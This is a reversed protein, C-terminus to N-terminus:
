HAQQGIDAYLPYYRYIDAFRAADVEPVGPSSVGSVPSRRRAPGTAPLQGFLHRVERATLVPVELSLAEDASGRIQTLGDFAEAVLSAQADTHFIGGTTLMRAGDAYHFRLLQRYRLQQDPELALNRDVLAQDIAGTFMRHSLEALKWGGLQEGATIDPPLQEDLQRDLWPIRRAVDAPPESNVTVMLMTLPVAESAVLATDATVAASISGDYDLWAIAPAGARRLGALVGPLVSSSPGFRLDICSLPLNFAFRERPGSQEISTMANLGLHRHFLLFDTFFIGGFGVYTYSGLRPPLRDLRQLVEVIMQREVHKSARVSYNVTRTSAM